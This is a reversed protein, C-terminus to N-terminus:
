YLYCSFLHRAGPEGADRSLPRHRLGNEALKESTM